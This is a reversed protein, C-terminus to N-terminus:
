KGKKKALEAKPINALVSYAYRKVQREVQGGGQKTDYVSMVADQLVGLVEVPVIVPKGRPIQYLFGNIQVNVAEKGADDTGEHIEIKVKDGCMQDDHNSGLVEDAKASTAAIAPQAPEDDITVVRADTTATM